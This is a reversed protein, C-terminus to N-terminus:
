LLNQYNMFFKITANDIKYQLVKKTNVIEHITAWQLKNKDEEEKYEFVILLEDINNQNNHFYGNYIMKKNFFIMKWMFAIM